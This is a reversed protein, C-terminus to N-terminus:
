TPAVLNLPNDSQDMSRKGRQHRLWKVIWPITKKRFDDMSRSPDDLKNKQIHENVEKMIQSRIYMQQKFPMTGYILKNRQEWCELIGTWIDHLVNSAWKESGMTKTGKAQSSIHLEHNLLAEWYISWRGRCFQDWGILCQHHYAEELYASSNLHLSELTPIATDNIVAGVAAYICTSIVHNKLSAQLTKFLKDLLEQRQSHLCKCQLLHRCSENETGCNPCIPPINPDCKHENTKTNLLNFNFKVLRFRDSRSFRLLTKGAVTWWLKSPHITQKMQQNTANCFKPFLALHQVTHRIKGSLLLKNFEVIVSMTPLLDYPLCNRRLKLTTTALEDAVHNFIQQPSSEPTIAQHGRVFSITLHFGMTELRRIESLIQLELDLDDKLLDKNKLHKYRNTSIRQLLSYGDCYYQISRNKGKVKFYQCLNRIFVFSTLMGYAECRFSTIGIPSGKVTGTATAKQVNNLTGLVVGYSGKTSKCGGDSVVLFTNEHYLFKTIDPTDVSWWSSLLREEWPPICNLYEDFTEYTPMQKPELRPISETRVVLSIGNSQTQVPFCDSPIDQVTQDTRTFHSQGRKESSLIYKIYSTTQYRVFLNNQNSYSNWSSDNSSTSLWPGLPKQLRGLSDCNAINTIFSRWYCFSRQSPKGQRPWALKTTRDPHLPVSEDSPYKLYIDSIRRGEPDTLESLTNVKFYIRWNNIVQVRDMPQLDVSDMLVKDGVRQLSPLWIDKIKITLEHSILFLHLESFWNKQIYSVTKTSELYPISKGILMQLYSLNIICLKGISSKSNRTHSVIQEIKRTYLETHLDLMGLGGYKSPGFIIDRSTHRNFGLLPLIANIVPSQISDCQAKTMNTPMISYLVQPMYYTHYVMWAEQRSLYRKQLLAAWDRNKELLHKYQISENGDLTRLCGLTKHAANPPILEIAQPTSDVGTTIKLPTHNPVIMTPNGTQDFQFDIIYYLCKSLQLLGGSSTLLNSWTQADHQLRQVLDDTTTGGNVMVSTDDVFGQNNVKVQIKNEPSSAQFGYSHEDLIDMLFSSTHLWLAPSSCSGQGTGHIPTSPSHSYTKSSPGLATKTVYNMNKLTEAQIKVINYALGYFMSILTAFLCIIRDFCSKADNDMTAFQSRTVSAYEYVLIKKLVQEGCSKGPRSGYQGENILENSESSYVLRRGWFLKLFLNYDAEYIHIVRLRDLRSCGSVKQIMSTHSNLWRRMPHGSKITACLMHYYVKLIISAKSQFSEGNQINQKIEVEEKDLVDQLLVRYHGLHRGSPSTTTHEDWKKLANKFECFTINSDLPPITPPLMFKELILQTTDDCTSFSTPLKGKLLNISADNTGEFGLETALPSSAFPSMHAQGFHAINREILAEEIRTPDSLKIWTTNGNIDVPTDITTLTSYKGKGLATKINRHCQKLYFQTKFSDKSLQPQQRSTTKYFHDERSTKMAIILSRKIKLAKIKEQKTDGQPDITQCIETKYPEQLQGWISALLLDTNPSQQLKSKLKFYKIVISINAIGPNWRVHPRKPSCRRESALVIETIQIDLKDIQKILVDNSGSYKTALANAKQIINHHIFQDYIYNQYQVIIHDPENSGIIRQPASYEKNDKMTQFNFDLYLGRHDSDLAAYFPFYGCFAIYQLWDKTCFAYDICRDSQSREQTSVTSQMQHFTAIADVLQHKRLFEPIQSNPEERSENADILILIGSDTGYEKEITHIIDSLDELCLSRVSKSINANTIQERQYRLSTKTGISNNAQSVCRYATIVSLFKNTTMRFTFGVFRGWKRKDIITQVIRSRWPESCMMLSGGPQYRSDSPNTNPSFKIYSRQQYINIKSSYSTKVHPDSTNICPEAIGTLDVENERLWELSTLWKSFDKTSLGNINQFFVRTHNPHKKQITDGWYEMHKTSCVISKSPKTLPTYLSSSYNSSKTNRIVISKLKRYPNKITTNILTHIRTTEIDPQQHNISTSM